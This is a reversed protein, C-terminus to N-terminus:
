RVNEQLQRHAFAISRIIDKGVVTICRTPTFVAVPTPVKNQDQPLKRSGNAM